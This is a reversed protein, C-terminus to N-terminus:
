SQQLDDLYRELHQLVLTTTGDSFIFTPGIPNRPIGKSHLVMTGGGSWRFVMVLSNFGYEDTFSFFQKAVKSKFFNPKKRSDTAHILESATVGTLWDVETVLITDTLGAEGAVVNVPKFNGAEDKESLGFRQALLKAVRHDLNELRTPFKEAGSKVMDAFSSM